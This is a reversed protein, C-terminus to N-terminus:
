EGAVEGAPQSPAVVACVIPEIVDDDSKIIWTEADDPDRAVLTLKMNRLGWNRLMGNIIKMQRDLKLSIQRKAWGTNNPNMVGGSGADRAIPPAM